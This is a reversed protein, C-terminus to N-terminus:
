AFMDNQDSPDGVEQQNLIQRLRPIWVEVDLHAESTLMRKVVDPMEQLLETLDGIVERVDALRVLEDADM